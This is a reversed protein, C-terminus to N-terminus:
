DDAPIFKIRYKETVYKETRTRKTESDYYLTFPEDEVQFYNYKNIYKSIIKRAGVSVKSIHVKTKQKDGSMLRFREMMYLRRKKQQQTAKRKKKAADSNLSSLVREHIAGRFEASHIINNKRAYFNVTTRSISLMSAIERSTHNPYLEIIKAVTTDNIPQRM